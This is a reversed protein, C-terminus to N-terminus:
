FEPLIDDSPGILDPEHADNDPSTISSSSGATTQMRTTAPTPNTLAPLEPSKRAQSPLQFLDGYAYRLMADKDAQMNIEALLEEDEEIRDFLEALSAETVDKSALFAIQGQKIRETAIRIQRASRHEFQTFYKSRCEIWTHDVYAYALGWNFPDFRIPVDKGLYDLLADNFYYVKHIPVGMTQVRRTGKNPSPLTLFYFNDDYPIIENNLEGHLALDIEQAELPSMGLAPHATSNHHALWDDLRWDFLNFTWIWM